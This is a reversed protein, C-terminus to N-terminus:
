NFFFSFVVTRRRETNSIHDKQSNRPVGQIAVRIGALTDWGLQFRAAQEIGRFVGYATYPSPDGSVGAVHEFGTAYRTETAMM